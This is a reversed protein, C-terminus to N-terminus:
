EESESEGEDGYEDEEEDNEVENYWRYQKYQVNLDDRAMASLVERLRPSVLAREPMRLEKLSSCSEVATAFLKAEDDAGRFDNRRVRLLSLKPLSPLLSALVPLAGSSLCDDNLYLQELRRCQSLEGLVTSLFDGTLENRPLSLVQLSEHQQQIIRSVITASNQKMGVNYLGLVRLRLAGLLPALQTLGEMDLVYDILGVFQLDPCSSCVTTIVDLNVAPDTCKQGGFDVGLLGTCRHTNSHVTAMANSSFLNLATYLYRLTSTNSAICAAIHATHRDTLNNVRLDILTLNRLLAMGDAM